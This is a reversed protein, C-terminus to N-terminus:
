TMWLPFVSFITYHVLLFRPCPSQITFFFRLLRVELFIFLIRLNSIVPIAKTAKHKIMITFPSLSDGNFEGKKNKIQLTAYQRGM